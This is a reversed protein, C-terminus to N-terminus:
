YDILSRLEATRNETMQRLCGYILLPEASGGRMLFGAAKCNADRYPIWARQAVRLAVEAGRLDEPLDTDMEKMAALVEKYTANLEQDAVQWDAEACINLEQQAMANACDLEQAVVPTAMVAIAVAFRIM